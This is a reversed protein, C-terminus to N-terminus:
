NEKIQTLKTDLYSIVNEKKTITSPENWIRWFETEFERIANNEEMVLGQIQQYAFNNRVDITVSQSKKVIFIFPLVEKCFGINYLPYKHLMYLMNSIVEIIEKPTATLKPNQSHVLGKECFEEFMEVEYIEYYKSFKINSHIQKRRQWLNDAIKHSLNGNKLEYSFYRILINKSFLHSSLYSSAVLTPISTEEVSEIHKIYEQVTRLIHVSM